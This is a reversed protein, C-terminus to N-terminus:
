RRRRQLIPAEPPDQSPEDLPQDAVRVHGLWDTFAVGGDTTTATLGTHPNIPDTWSITPRPPRDPAARVVPWEGVASPPSPRARQRGNIHEQLRRAAFVARNHIEGENEERIGEDVEQLERLVDLIAPRQPPATKSPRRGLDKNRLRVLFRKVKFPPADKLFDEVSHIFLFVAEKAMGWSPFMPFVRCEITKHMGYPYNLITRRVDRRPGSQPKDLLGIQRQTDLTSLCFRNEGRLRSSLFGYLKQQNQFRNAFDYARSLFFRFFAPNMLRAYDADAKLSVHVHLGVSCRRDCRCLSYWGPPHNKELWPGVEKKRMPPSVLEGVCEEYIAYLPDKTDEGAGMPAHVSADQHLIQDERMPYRWGGELEIGVRFIRGM